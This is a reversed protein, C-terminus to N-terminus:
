PGTAVLLAWDALQGSATIDIGATAIGGMVVNSWLLGIVFGFATGLFTAITKRM